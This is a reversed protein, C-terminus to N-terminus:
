SLAKFAESACIERALKQGVEIMGLDHETGEEHCSGDCPGVVRVSCYDEIKHGEIIPAGVLEAHLFREKWGNIIVSVCLLATLDTDNFFQRYASAYTM